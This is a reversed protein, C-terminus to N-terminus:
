KEDNYLLAANQSAINNFILSNILIDISIFKRDILKIANEYFASDNRLPLKLESIITDIVKKSYLNELMAHLFIKKIKKSEMGYIINRVGVATLVGGIDRGQEIVTAIHFDILKQTGKQVDMVEEGVKPCFIPKNQQEAFEVNHMTGGKEDCEYIVIARSMGVILRNRNVFRFKAAKIGVPYESMLIGGSEVIREALQLNEKPYVFDLGHALVAVTKGGASICAQHALKDVGCALGSIISCNNNVWQPILYNVANYSLKTPYRTGVCAISNESIDSFEGGKYYIVVPPNDIKALEKPYNKDTYYTTKIGCEENRSLITDAKSLALKVLHDNNFYQQYAILEFSEKFITMDNFMRKIDSMHDKLLTRLDDKKLGLENLAIVYRVMNM